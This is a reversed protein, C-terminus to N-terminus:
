LGADCLVSKPLCHLGLDSAVSRPTRDPDVSNANLVPIETIFSLVLFCVLCGKFQFYVLGSLQPLLSWETGFIWSGKGFLLPGKM